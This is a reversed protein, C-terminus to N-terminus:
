APYTGNQSALNSPDLNSIQFNGDFSRYRLGGAAGYDIFLEDGLGVAIEEINTVDIGVPTWEESSASYYWAANGFIAFLDGEPLPVLATPNQNTIRQFEDDGSEVQWLGAGGRDEYITGDASVALNEPVVSSLREFGDNRQWRWTGQLAAGVDTSFVGIFEGEDDTEFSDPRSQTLLSWSHEPNWNWVGVSPSDYVGFFSDSRSVTIGTPDASSLLGWGFSPDWRWTGNAGFDGYIVGNGAVGFDQATTLNSLLAWGSSPNWRWFGDAFSGIVNGGDDVTLQTAQQNSIHSWGVSNDWRWVGDTFNAATASPVTREELSELVPRLSNM